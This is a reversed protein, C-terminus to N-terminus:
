TNVTAMNKRWAERRPLHLGSEIGSLEAILEAHRGSIEKPTELKITVYLDGVIGNPFALGRGKLKLKAHSQAGCPVKVVMEEGHLGLIPLDGGLALQTYTVPVDMLLDAGDRTFVPHPKVSVAVILDGPSGDNISEEGQGPIRISMGSEIGAPIRLDISREHEGKAGMGRCAECPQPNVRGTGKCGPCNQRFEFPANNVVLFGSGNCQDCSQTSAVGSGKCDECKTRVKVAVTKTCGSMVERLDIDVKAHANKGKFSNRSLVESMMDMFPNGFPSGDGDPRRRFFMGSSRADYQARKNQDSLIDYAEQIEQFRKPAEPDGPNVDPHHTKAGKRYAKTIEDQTAEKSVGLVAYYDPKM